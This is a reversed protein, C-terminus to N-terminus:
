LIWDERHYRSKHAIRRLEGVRRDRVGILRRQDQAFCAGAPQGVKRSVDLAGIPERAVAIQKAQQVVSYAPDSVVLTNHMDLAFAEEFHKTPFRGRSVGHMQKVVGVWVGVMSPHM